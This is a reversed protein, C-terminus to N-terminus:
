KGDQATKPILWGMVGRYSHNVFRCFNPKGWNQDFSIFQYEGSASCVSTHGALGTVWPYYGWFVIAGKPPIQPDGYPSIVKTFYQNGEKPFNIFMQRATLASPISEPPVGLVENQYYRILDVCTPGYVKDWDIYTGNYKAIFQELTLM